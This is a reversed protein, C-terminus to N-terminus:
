AEIGKTETTLSKRVVAGGVRRNWARVARRKLNQPAFGHYVGSCCGCVCKVFAFYGGDNGKDTCLLRAKGGCFPCPKLNPKKM